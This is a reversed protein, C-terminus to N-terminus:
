EKLADLLFSYSVKLNPELNEQVEAYDIPIGTRQPLDNAETVFRDQLGCIELLGLLRSNISHCDKEKGKGFCFFEKQLNISFATGHFSDTFICKANLVLWVWERPGIDYLQIDSYQENERKYGSQLHPITVIPLKGDFFQKIAKQFQKNRGLFFSFVYEEPCNKPKVAFTQWDEKSLLFTPDLVTTIPKEVLSAIIEKAKNERVSISQLTGIHDLLYKKESDTLQSRGISAAYSFRKQTCQPIDLFMVPSWLGPNWIQDSGCVLIDYDSVVEHISNDSVAASHPISQEFERFRRNRVQIGAKRKKNFCAIITIIQNCVYEIARKVGLNRLRNVMYMRRSQCYSIVESDYGMQSIARQLAYAQLLGGYNRNNKYITIIGVRRM